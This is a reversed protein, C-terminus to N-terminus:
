ARANLRSTLRIPPMVFDAEEDDDDDDVDLDIIRPGQVQTTSAALLRMKPQPEPIPTPLSVQAFHNQCPAELSSISTDSTDHSLLEPPEQSKRANCKVVETKAIQLVDEFNRRIGALENRCDGERLTLHASKECLEQAQELSKDTNEFLEALPNSGTSVGLRGSTRATARARMASMRPQYSTRSAGIQEHDVQDAGAEAEDDEDSLTALAALENMKLEMRAKRLLNRGIGIARM